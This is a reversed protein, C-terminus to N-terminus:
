LQFRFGEVPMVRFSVIGLPPTDITAKLSSVVPPLLLLGSDEETKLNYVPKSKERERTSSKRTTGSQHSFDSGVLIRFKRDGM